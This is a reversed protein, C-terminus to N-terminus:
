NKILTYLTSKNCCSYFTCVIYLIILISFIKYITDKNYNKIIDIHNIKIFKTKNCNNTININNCLLTINCLIMSKNCELHWSEIFQISSNYNYLYYKNCLLNGIYNYKNNDSIIYDNYIKIWTSKENNCKESFHFRSNCLKILFLFIIIIM